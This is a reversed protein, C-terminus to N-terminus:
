RDILPQWADRIDRPLHLDPWAEVLLVGDVFATIDEPLGETLIMRYALLRERRDALDRPKGHPSWDVHLPLVVSALAENVPLRTLQDPVYFSRGRRDHLREFKVRPVAELQQGNAELVRELTELTPNRQGHEYASLTPRSTGARRAVEAQSLGSAIRARAALTTM